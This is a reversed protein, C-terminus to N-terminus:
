WSTSVDLLAEAILIDVVINITRQDHFWSNSHHTTHNLRAIFRSTTPCSWLHHIHLGSHHHWATQFMKSSTIPGYLSIEEHHFHFLGSLSLFPAERLNARFQTVLNSTLSLLSSQKSFVQHIFLDLRFVSKSLRPGPGCTRESSGRFGFDLYIQINTM